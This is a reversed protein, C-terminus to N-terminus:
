KTTKAAEAAKAKLWEKLPAIQDAPKPFMKKIGKIDQDDPLFERVIEDAIVEGGVTDNSYQLKGVVNNKIDLLPLYFQYCAPIGAEALIRLM